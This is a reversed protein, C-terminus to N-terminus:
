GSTVKNHSTGSTWRILWSELSWKQKNTQENWPFHACSQQSKLCDTLSPADRKSILNGEQHITTLERVSSFTHISKWRLFLLGKCAMVPIDELVFISASHVSCGWLLKGKSCYGNQAVDVLDTLKSCDQKGCESCILPSHYAVFQLFLYM